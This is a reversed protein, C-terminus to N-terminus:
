LVGDARLSPRTLFALGPGIWRALDTCCGFAFSDADENGEGLVTRTETEEFSDADGNGEV